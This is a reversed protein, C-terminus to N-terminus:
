RYFRVVMKNVMLYPGRIFFRLISSCYFRKPLGKEADHLNEPTVSELQIESKKLSWEM